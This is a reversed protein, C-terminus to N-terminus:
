RAAAAADAPVGSPTATTRVMRRALLEMAALPFQPGLNVVCTRSMINLTRPCMDPSYDIERNAWAWPNFKPHFTRKALLPEWNTYVHKSNDLLRRAGRHRSFAIADSARDFLVTLSVASDPDNHPSIRFGEADAYIPELARRRARLRRIYGRLQSLQVNLMAGEIETARMNHGVFTPEDYTDAHGRVFAGLDHYNRSRAFIKESSTILAGGEGINVNKYRNFSFAGADGIAGCFRGKYPVGGAQCADEIVVLKRRRAIAMVADMDAPANVMHVPMIAKTYPTIKREIDAPDIGLSENIEVLVPVAGVHLPAAATSMWTYAPVLVEDGPGIGAAALAATLASTGHDVTLAFRAGTYACLRAEFRDVEGPTDGYRLLRGSAIARGVAFWELLGVRAM